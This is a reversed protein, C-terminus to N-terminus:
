EIPEDTQEVRERAHAVGRRTQRLANCGRVLLAQLVCDSPVPHGRALKDLPDVVPSPLSLVAPRCELARGRALPPLHIRGEDQVADVHQERDPTSVEGESRQGRSRVRQEEQPERRLRVLPAIRGLAAHLGIHECRLAHM